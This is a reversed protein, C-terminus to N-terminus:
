GLLFGDGFYVLLKSSDVCRSAGARGATRPGRPPRVPEVPWPAGTRGVARAGLVLAAAGAVAQARIVGPM